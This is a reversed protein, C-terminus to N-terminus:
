NLLLTMYNDWNLRAYVLGVATVAFLTLVAGVLIKNSLAMNKIKYTITSM